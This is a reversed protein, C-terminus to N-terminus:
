VKWIQLDWLCQATFFSIRNWGLDLEELNDLGLFAEPEINVIGNGQAILKKSKTKNGFAHSKIQPIANFAIYILDDDPINDPIETLVGSCDCPYILTTTVVIAAFM